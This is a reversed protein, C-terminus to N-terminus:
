IGPEIRFLPFTGAHDLGGGVRQEGDDVVDEIKRLDFRTPEVEVAGLEIQSVANVQGELRQSYAGVLFAESQDAVDPGLHRAPHDAVQATQPLDQSIEDAVGNLEGLVAFHPEHDCYIGPCWM